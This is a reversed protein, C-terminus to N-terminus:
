PTEIFCKRCYNIRESLYKKARPVSLMPPKPLWQKVTKNDRDLFEGLIRGANQFKCGCDCVQTTIVLTISLLTLTESVQRQRIPGIYEDIFRDVELQQSATLTM